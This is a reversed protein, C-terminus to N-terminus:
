FRGKVLPREVGDQAMGVMGMDCEQRFLPDTFCEAQVALKVPFLHPCRERCNQAGEGSFPRQVTMFQLSVPTKAKFIQDKGM